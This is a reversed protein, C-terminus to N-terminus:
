HSGNAPGDLNPGLFKQLIDYSNVLEDGEPTIVYVTIDPSMSKSNDRRQYKGVYGGQYLRDLMSACKQHSLHAIEALHSIVNTKEPNNDRCASLLDYFARAESRNGM